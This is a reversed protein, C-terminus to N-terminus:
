RRNPLLELAQGSRDRFVSFHRRDLTLVQRAKLREAAAM